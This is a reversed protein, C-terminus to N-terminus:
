AEFVVIVVTSNDFHKKTSDEALKRAIDTAPIGKEVDRTVREFYRQCDEETGLGDSALLLISRHVGTLTRYKTHPVNSIWDATM